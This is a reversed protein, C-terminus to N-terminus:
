GRKLGPLYADFHNLTEYVYLNGTDTVQPIVQEFERGAAPQSEMRSKADMISEAISESTGLLSIIWEFEGINCFYVPGDSWLKNQISEVVLPRLVGDSFYLTDYHVLLKVTTRSNDPYALVTSDLQIVGDQFKKLYNRISDVDPYLQRLMLAALSSKLEVVLRYHKTYIFWDAYKGSSPAPVRAFDGSSLCQQLLKEVYREFYMGFATVFAQSGLNLYYDRILWFPGDAMKKAFMYTNVALLRNSSTRVVPKVYFLNERLPSQRFEQYDAAYLAAVQQVNWATLAPHVNSATGDFTMLGLDGQRQALSFLGFLITRVTQLDFGSVELCARQLDEGSGIESPIVELLEVQRNFEERIRYLEQYWFQKQSFGVAFKLMSDDNSLGEFETRAQDEHWNLFFNCLGVLDHVSPEWPQFDNSERIALYALGSLDWATITVKGKQRLPGCSRLVPVHMIPEKRGFMGRIADSILLLTSDLKARGLHHFLGAKMGTQRQFSLLM